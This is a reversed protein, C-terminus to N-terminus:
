LDEKQEELMRAEIEDPKWLNECAASMDYCLFNLPDQKQRKFVREIKTDWNIVFAECTDRLMSARFRKYQSYFGKRQKCAESVGLMIKSEDTVGKLRENLTTAVVWCGSCYLEQSIGNPRKIEQIEKKTKKQKKAKSYVYTIALLCIVSLVVVSRFAKM